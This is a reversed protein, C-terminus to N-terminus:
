QEVKEPSKEIDVLFNRYLLNRGILIPYKMHSRDKLNAEVEIKRGGVEITVMVVPRQEVSKTIPAKVKFTRKVPGLQAETALDLDISTMAAGTDVLADAEVVKGNNHIKVKEILGLIGKSM